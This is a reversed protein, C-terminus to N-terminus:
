FSCRGILGAKFDNIGNGFCIRGQSEVVITITQNPLASLPLNFLQQERSVIGVFYTDVFVYGRDHVDSISLVAPDAQKLPSFVVKLKRHIM